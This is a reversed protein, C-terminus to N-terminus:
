SHRPRGITSGFGAPSEPKMGRNRSPNSTDTVGYEFAIEASRGPTCSESDSALTDLVSAPGM